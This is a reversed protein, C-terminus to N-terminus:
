QLLVSIMAYCICELDATGITKPEAKVEAVKM